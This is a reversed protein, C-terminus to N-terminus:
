VTARQSAVAIQPLGDDILTQRIHYVGAANTARGNAAIYLAVLGTVHATADSTGDAFNYSSNMTTSLIGM